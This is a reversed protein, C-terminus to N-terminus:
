VEVCEADSRKRPQCSLSLMRSANREPQCADQLVFTTNVRAPLVSTRPGHARTQIGGSLQKGPIELVCRFFRGDVAFSMGFRLVGHACVPLGDAAVSARLTLFREVAVVSVLFNRFRGEAEEDTEEAAIAKRQRNKKKKSLM